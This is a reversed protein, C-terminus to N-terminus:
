IWLLHFWTKPLFSLLLLVLFRVLKLLYADHWRDCGLLTRVEIWCTCILFGQVIQLIFSTLSKLSFLDFILLLLVMLLIKAILFRIEIVCQIVLDNHRWVERLLLTSSIDKFTWMTKLRLVLCIVTSIALFWIKTHLTFM